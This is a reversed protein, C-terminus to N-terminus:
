PQATQDDSRPVEKVKFADVQLKILQDNEVRASVEVNYRFAYVRDAAVYKFPRRGLGLFGSEPSFGGSPSLGGLGQLRGFGSASPAYTDIFSPQEPSFFSPFASPHIARTREATESSLIRTERVTLRAEGKLSAEAYFANEGVRYKKGSVFELASTEINGITGPLDRLRGFERKVSDEIVNVPVVGFFWESEVPLTELANEVVFKSIERYFIVRVGAQTVDDSLQQHLGIGDPDAFNADNSIFAVQNGAKKVYQIVVMWLIVDRLEEGESSAPRVRKVGRRVLEQVDVGSVDPYLVAQVGPAPKRLANKLARGESRIDPSPFNGLDSIAKKRMWNWANRTRAIEEALQARYREAVEHFVIMPIVLRSGTRRLYAFLEQFQNGEMKVDRLYVNADLIVDM